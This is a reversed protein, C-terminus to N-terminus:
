ALHFGVSGEGLALLLKERLIKASRYSPLKLINFCTSATPLMADGGDVRQITFKPELCSFGLSPPRACSTVFRLLSRLQSPSLSYVVKWFRHIVPDLESLAGIYITNAKLDSVDITGDFAGSILVQLEPENFLLLWKKEIVDWLGRTFAESQEKLKDHIHYKAVMAIYRNKNENTVDIQAGGPMLEIEERNGFDTNVVTFSLCLDRADGDYAKLFM